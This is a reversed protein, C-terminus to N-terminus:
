GPVRPLPRRAAVPKIAAMLGSGCFPEGKKFYFHFLYGGVNMSALWL